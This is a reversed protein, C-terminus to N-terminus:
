PQVTFKLGAQYPASGHVYRELASLGGKQLLSELHAKLGSPFDESRTRILTGEVSFRGVESGDVTHTVVYTPNM